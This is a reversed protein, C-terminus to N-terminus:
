VGYVGKGGYAAEVVRDRTAQPAETLHEIPQGPLFDMTLVTGQTLEPVPRPLAFRADEELLAAFRTMHAAEAAYDTEAHLQARAEDMLAALDLGTPILGSLRILSAVNAVDSDISRAIGPYQVKVVVSRGDRLRAKHVQGISAAAIPRVDFQAFRRLWDPGWAATLVSKLQKPPMFEAEDRLRAMIQALEPPLVTGGDMSVLQGVKMAAGRMRALEDTIRHLNAPTLLLAHPDPREGRGLGVLGDRAMRGALGLALGGMRANGGLRRSPVPLGGPRRKPPITM